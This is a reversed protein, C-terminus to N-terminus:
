GEEEGTGITLERIREQKVNRQIKGIKLKGGAKEIHKSMGTKDVKKDKKINEM